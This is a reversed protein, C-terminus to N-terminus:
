RRLCSPYAVKFKKSSTRPSSHDRRPCDRFTQLRPESSATETVCTITLCNEAVKRKWYSLIPQDGRFGAVREERTYPNTAIQEAVYQCARILFHGSGMAPDLVRIALARNPFDGRLHTLTEEPQETNTQPLGEISTIEKRLSENVEEFLPGLTKEVIYGVIDDPTYYSGSRRREDKHKELYVSGRPYTEGTTEFSEEVGSTAPIVEVDQRSHKRRVVVMDETAFVPRLELLSEYINGLHQIALDRYDVMVLGIEKHEPFPARGLQDIVQALYFDPLVKETLFPHLDPDFLGGNYAPVEYRGVGRDIVDFLSLIDPWLTCSTAGFSPQRRATIRDLTAAIHNRLRGLSRNDTYPRNLHYPLLGRDEAYLIFLLRYLLILSQERCLELDREPTLQNPRHSLFGQISLRLATFVRGSLKESVGLRYETSGERARQMLSPRGTLQLYGAPSFFLYFRLFDEFGPWITFLTIPQELAENLLPELDFELFTTFRPQGPDHIRPILRWCQGNTLIAYNLQTSILYWEIQEPPYERQNEAIVPRDLPIHWAKADALVAPHSWFSPNLRGAELSGELDSDSLFLAYDPRRGRVHTQYILKWGLAHFVPQIFAQELTLENGYQEVRTKQVRWLELLARLTQSAQQRLESWEPELPLRNALWHTSFLQSNRFHIPSLQSKKKSPRPM